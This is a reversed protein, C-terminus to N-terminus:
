LQRVGWDQMFIAESRLDPSAKTGLMATGEALLQYGEELLRHAEAMEPPPDILDLEEVLAELVSVPQGRANLIALDTTAPRVMLLYVRVESNVLSLPGAPTPTPTPQPQCGAVVVGVLLALILRLQARALAASRKDREPNM